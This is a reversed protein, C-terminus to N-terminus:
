SWFIDSGWRYGAGWFFPRRLVRCSFTVVTVWDKTKPDYVEEYSMGEEVQIIVTVGTHDYLKVPDAWQYGFLEQLQSQRDRLSISRNAQRARGIVVRYRRREAQELLPVGRLKAGSWVFPHDEAGYGRFMMAASVGSQATPPPVMSIQEGTDLRGVMSWRTAEGELARDWFVRHDYSTTMYADIWATYRELYRGTVELRTFIKRATAWARREDNGFDQFPLYLWSETAFRHAGSLPLETGYTDSDPDQDLGNGILYDELPTSRDPLSVHTVLPVGSAMSAVWLLPRNDTGLSAQEVCTVQQEFMTLESHWNMSQPATLGAMVLREALENPRGYCIFTDTGNYVPVALWEGDSTAATCDGNLPTVRPFGFGPACAQEAWQVQLNAVDVRVLGNRGHSAYVGGFMFFAAKGNDPHIANSWDAIRASRGDAQLHYLGDTCTFFVILPAGVINTIEHTGDGVPYGAGMDSAWVGDDCLDAATSAVAFKFSFKSDTGIIRWEGVDSIVFYAQGLHRRNATGTYWTAGEKVHLAGPDGSATRTGLVIMGKYILVDQIWEGPDVTHEVTWSTHPSSLRLLVGGAAVLLDDGFTTMSDIQGSPRSGSGAPLEPMVTQQGSPMWMRSFRTTGNITLPYSNPIMRESSGVGGDLRDFVLPHEMGGAGQGAEVQGFRGGQVPSTRGDRYLTLNVSENLIMESGSLVGTGVM